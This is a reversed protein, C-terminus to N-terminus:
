IHSCYFDLLDLAFDTIRNILFAGELGEAQPLDGLHHLLFVSGGDAAHYAFHMM